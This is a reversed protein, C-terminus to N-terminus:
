QTETSAILDCNELIVTTELEQKNGMKHANMYLCKLQAIPGMVKKSSDERIGKPYNM